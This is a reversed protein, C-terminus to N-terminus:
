KSVVYKQLWEIQTEYYGKCKVGVDLPVGDVERISGTASVTIGHNGDPFTRVVLTAKPKRGITSQYLNRAKRWNLNTDKEGFLALVPINLRRLMKDFNQVRIMSLTEADFKYKDKEKKYAVQATEYDTRTSTVDGALEFVVSDRRLYKTARLYSDYNGGQMFIQRGRKWEAMLQKTEEPTRGELPLNSELLYYKNDEASPGSVSIWFKIEPDKSLAIPAVWGGRSTAWIGIKESGPIKEARLYAVADLVEQASEELPQNDDFKGESRGCGPKDWIASAIGLEAFRQRLDSYRNERRIDTLGSGHVFVILARAKNDVPQDIIGSLRKTGSVFEFDRTVMPAANTANSCGFTCLLALSLVTSLVRRTKLIFISGFTSTLALALAGARHSNKACIMHYHKLAAHRELGMRFRRSDSKLVRAARFTVCWINRRTM